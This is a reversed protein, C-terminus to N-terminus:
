GQNKIFNWNDRCMDDLTYKAEWNLENKARSVDAFCTAIDGARRPAIKYNVKKGSAKEFAKVVDLVSSGKGTGLNYAEAGDIHPLKELAKIHGTALLRESM